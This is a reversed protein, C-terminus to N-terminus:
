ALGRIDRVSLGLLALALSLLGGFIFIPSPGVRDALWGVVGLGIPLLLYSGFM